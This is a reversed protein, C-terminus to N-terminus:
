IGHEDLYTKIGAELDQLAAEMSPYTDQGEYVTGGQDYARVFASIMNNQGIEIWGTDEVFYHITPYQTEFTKSKPM